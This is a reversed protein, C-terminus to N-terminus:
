ATIEVLCYLALGEVQITAVGDAYSLPVPKGEPLVRAGAPKRDMRISVSFGPVPLPQFRDQLNLMGLYCPGDDGEAFMVLEVVDAADSSFSFEDVLSRILAVFVDSHLPRGAAEIPASAWIVSGQGFRTRVIAPMSTEKGPPDSHISSFRMDTLTKEASSPANLLAGAKHGVLPVTFPLTMSALIDGDPMGDLLAQRYPLSMPYRRTFGRLSESGLATPAIYTRTERTYGAVRVGLMEAVLTPASHGSLYLAGGGAVFARVADIDTESMMRVDPLVLVKVKDLLDKRLVPLVGFPVHRERLAAAAGLAAAQHPQSSDEAELSSVEVAPLDTDMKSNLGYFIGVDQVLEGRLWPEYAAAARYAKGLKEYVREDLTGVPDIADIMVCAGHHFLTTMVDLSLLESSKTTTHEKLDPFCRSTMYEFPENPTDNYYLKCAFSQEALGGYLDGGVYDSANVINEGVGYRWFHMAPSYQHEVSCRPKYRKLEDTIESAFEGLWEQRMSQFALWGEDSWDVKHPIDGSRASEWRSRCSDCYCVMPWFTMDFFIGEFQFYRSFEGIQARIFDRYEENNPCCLGYRSGNSRSSAGSRSVMRWEPHKEYAWNNYILSYYAIVDMGAGHCLDFLRRMADERGKFAGHMHGTKTPWYCHGVHSHIYIMPSAVNALRLDRFYEEPDFRSLFSEDWDDIHMDVLNRRYSREYWEGM